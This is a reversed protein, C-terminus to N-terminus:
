IHCDFLSILTDDSVEELLKSVESNWQSQEKRNSVTAWWGMEGKEYWKGDKVLAFPTVASNAADICYDERSVNFDEVDIFALKHNNEKNWENMRAVAEQSGYYARAKDIRGPFMVERVYNWDQVPATGELIKRVKDWTKGAEEGAEKRMGFFDIDRKYASDATGDPARNGFIGPSGCEGEVGEKMKFFGAWRGGLVYWDWKSNPNHWYGLKGEHMEYGGYDNAFKQIDNDYEAKEEDTQSEWDKKVEETCDTFELYKEPCDGMNNEQYPALQEEPNEGIVM